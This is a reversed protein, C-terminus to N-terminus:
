RNWQVETNTVVYKGSCVTNIQTLWSQDSEPRFKKCKLCCKNSVEGRLWFQAWDLQISFLTKNMKISTLMQLMGNNLIACLYVSDAIQKWLSRRYLVYQEVKVTRTCQITTELYLQGRHSLQIHRGVPSWSTAPEVGASTPLMRKHLNITFYKRRDYDGKRQNLFPLEPSLIHM